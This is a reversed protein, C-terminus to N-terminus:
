HCEAKGALPSFPFPQPYKHSGQSVEVSASNFNSSTSCSLLPWRWWDPASVGPGWGPTWCPSLHGAGSSCTTVREKVMAKCLQTCLITLLPLTLFVWIYALLSVNLFDVLLLECIGQRLPFGSYSWMHCSHKIEIQWVSLSGGWVGAEKLGAGSLFIAKMEERKRTFMEYLCCYVTGWTVETVTSVFGLYVSKLFREM